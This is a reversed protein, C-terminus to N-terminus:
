APGFQDLLFLEPNAFPETLYDVILSRKVKRAAASSLAKQSGDSFLL